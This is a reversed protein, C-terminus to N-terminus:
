YLVTFANNRYFFKLANVVCKLLQKDVNSNKM